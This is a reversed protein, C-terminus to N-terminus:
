PGVVPSLKIWHEGGTITKVLAIQDGATAVVWGIQESIFDMEPTWSVTSVPTWTVGGDSTRQITSALAWGTDPSYFYLSKGSYEASSWTGGGDKTTYIYYSYTVPSISYNFCQVNMHGLNNGFFFPDYSGCAEQAGEDFLSPASLPAPLTVTQWTYGADISKYLLVGAMVGECDGTLWGHNADTFLMGTKSCSMIGSPDNWPDQIRSWTAGSDTSHFLAIYDHFTGRGVHVLFWGYQSSIFQLADPM